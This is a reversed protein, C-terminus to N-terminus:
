FTLELGNAWALHEVMDWGLETKTTGQKGNALNWTIYVVFGNQAVSTEDSVRIMKVKDM